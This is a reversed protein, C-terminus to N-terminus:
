TSKRDRPAAPPHTAAPWKLPLRSRRLMGNNRHTLVGEPLGWSPFAGAQRSWVGAYRTEVIKSPTGCHGDLKIGHVRDGAVLVALGAHPLLRELVSRADVPMFELASREDGVCALHAAGASAAALATGADVAVAGVGASARAGFSGVALRHQHIRQMFRRLHRDGALAGRDLLAALEIRHGVLQHEGGTGAVVADLDGLIRVAAEAEVDVALVVFDLQRPPLLDGDAGAVAVVGDLDVGTHGD